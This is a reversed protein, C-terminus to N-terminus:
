VNAEPWYPRFCIHCYFDNEEACSLHVVSGCHSCPDDLGRQRNHLKLGCCFCDTCPCRDRRQARWSRKRGEEEACVRHFSLLCKKKEDCILDLGGVAKKCLFCRTGRAVDKVIQDVERNPHGDKRVGKATLDVDIDANEDPDHDADQTKQKKKPPKKGVSGAKKPQRPKIRAGAKSLAKAEDLTAQALKLKKSTRARDADDPHRIAGTKYKLQITGNINLEPM